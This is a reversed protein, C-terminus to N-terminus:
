DIHGNMGTIRSYTLLPYRDFSWKNLFNTKCKGNNLLDASCDCLVINVNTM